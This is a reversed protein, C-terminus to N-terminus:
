ELSNWLLNFSWKLLSDSSISTLDSLDLSWFSRLQNNVISKMLADGWWIMAPLILVSWFIVHLDSLNFFSLIQVSPCVVFLLICLILSLSHVPMPGFAHLVLLYCCPLLLVMQHSLLSPLFLSFGLWQTFGIWIVCRVAWIFLSSPNFIFNSILPDRFQSKIASSRFGQRLPLDFFSAILLWNM